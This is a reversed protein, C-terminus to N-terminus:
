GFVPDDALRSTFTPGVLPVSGIGPLTVSLDGTWLTSGDAAEQLVGSGTFPRPPTVEVSGRSTDFVFDAAPAPAVV